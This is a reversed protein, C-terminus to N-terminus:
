SEDEWVTEWNGTQPNLLEIRKVSSVGSKVRAAAVKSKYKVFSVVGNSTWDFYSRVFAKLLDAESANAQRSTTDFLIQRNAVMADFKSAFANWTTAEVSRNSDMKDFSDSLWKAGSPGWKHGTVTGQTEHIGFTVVQAYKVGRALKTWISKHVPM